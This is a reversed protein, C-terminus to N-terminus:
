GCWGIIVGVAPIMTIVVMALATMVLRLTMYETFSFEGNTDTALVYRLALSSFAIAPTAIALGLFFDSSSDLPVLHALVVLWLAQCGAYGLNGILTWSANAILSPSPPAVTSIGAM